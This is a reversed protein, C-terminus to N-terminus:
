APVAGTPDPEDTTLDAVATVDLIRAVADAM